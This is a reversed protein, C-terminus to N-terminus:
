RGTWRAPRRELFAAVGEAADASSRARNRATATADWGTRDADAYLAEIAALSERM